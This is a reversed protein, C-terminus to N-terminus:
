DTKVSHVIPPTTKFLVKNDCSPCRVFELEEFEKKCNGCKYMFM